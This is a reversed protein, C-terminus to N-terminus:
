WICRGFGMIKKLRKKMKRPYRRYEKHRSSTGRIVFCDVGNNIAFLNKLDSNTTDISCSFTYKQEFDSKTIPKEVKSKNAYTINGNNMIIRQM